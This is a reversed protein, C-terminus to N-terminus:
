IFSDEYFYCIWSISFLRLRTHFQSMNVVNCPLVYFMPQPPPGLSCQEVSFNIYHLLTGSSLKIAKCCFNDVSLQHSFSSQAEACDSWLWWLDSLKQFHMKSRKPEKLSSHWGTLPLILVWRRCYKLLLKATMISLNTIRIAM